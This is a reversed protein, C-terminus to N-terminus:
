KADVLMLSASAKCYEPPSIYQLALLKILIKNRKILIKQPKLIPTTYGPAPPISALIAGESINLDSVSKGFYFNAAEKIGYNNHGFYIINLYMSLIEDKTFSQEIKHALLIENFKRTFTKRKHLYVNRALQMTITSAGYKKEGTIILIKAATMLAPYDVGQHFHFFGDEAVIFAKKVHPPIQNAPVFHDSDNIESLLEELKTTDPIFLYFYITLSCLCFAILISLRTIFTNLSM